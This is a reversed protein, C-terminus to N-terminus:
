YVQNTIAHHSEQRDDVSSNGNKNNEKYKQTELLMMGWFDQISDLWLVNNNKQVPTLLAFYVKGYQLHLWIYASRVAYNFVYM